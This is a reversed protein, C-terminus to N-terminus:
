RNGMSVIPTTADPLNEPDLETDLDSNSDEVLEVAGAGLALYLNVRNDMRLRRSTLWRSANQLAARRSTLTTTFNILGSEYQSEALELARDAEESASRLRFEQEKLFVESALASEVEAFAGLVASQYEALAQTRQAKSLQYSNWLRGGQFIPQALNAGLAWVSFDSNALEDLEATSTGGSATLSIRPFLAARAERIRAGSAALRREAAILDPRRELIESPLGAPPDDVGLAWEGEPLIEASPYRGILIELSRLAQDRARRKMALDAQAVSTEQRSLRVDLASRVGSEYRKMIKEESSEYSAVTQEALREQEVAEMAGFWAKITQGILSLRAGAYDSKAAEFDALSASEASRIRGWIDLEWSLQLNAGFNDFKQSLVGGNSGPIPLGIFNQKQRNGSIAGNVQPYLNAGAIKASRSATELRAAAAQLNQNHELAETIANQLGPIEWEKWWETLPENFSGHPADWISPPNAALEPSETKPSSVCGVLLAFGLFSLSWCVPTKFNKLVTMILM